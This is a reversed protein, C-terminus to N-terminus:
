FQGCFSGGSMWCSLLMGQVATQAAAPHVSCFCGERQPCLSLRLHHEPSFLSLAIPSPRPETPFWRDWGLLLTSTGRTRAPKLARKEPQDRFHEALFFSLFSETKERPNEWSKGVGWWGLKACPSGVPPVAAGRSPALVLTLRVDALDVQGNEFNTNFINPLPIGMGVADALGLSCSMLSSVGFAGAPSPAIPQTHFPPEGGGYQQYCACICGCPHGEGM